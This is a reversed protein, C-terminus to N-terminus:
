IVHRLWKDFSMIYGMMNRGVLCPVTLFFCCKFVSGRIIAGSFCVTLCLDLFVRTPERDLCWSISPSSLLSKLLCLSTGYEHIPLSLTTFTDVSGLSSYLNLTSGMLTGPPNQKSLFLGNRLSSLFAFPGFYDLLQPFSSYLELFCM